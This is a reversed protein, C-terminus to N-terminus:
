VHARGIKGLADIGGHRFFHADESALVANKLVDPIDGERLMVRRERAFSAFVSGDKAYLQTVLSPTYDSLGQVQEPHSIVSAVGVGLAAGLVLVAALPWVWRLWARPSQPPPPTHLPYRPLPEDQM